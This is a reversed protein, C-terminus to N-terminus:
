RTSYKPNRRRGTAAQEFGDRPPPAVVQRGLDAAEDPALGGDGLNHRQERIMAEDREAARRPYALGPQGVADRPLEVVVELVADPDDLQRRERLGRQGRRRNRGREAQVLVGAEGRVLQDALM